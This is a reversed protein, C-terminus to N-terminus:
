TNCVSGAKMKVLIQFSSISTNNASQEFRNTLYIHLVCGFVLFDFFNVIHLETIQENFLWFICVSVGVFSGKKISM